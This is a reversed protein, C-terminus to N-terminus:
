VRCTAIVVVTVQHVDMKAIDLPPTIILLLIPAIMLIFRFRTSLNLLLSQHVNSEERLEYWSAVIVICTRSSFLVNFRKLDTADSPNIGGPTVVLEEADGMFFSM